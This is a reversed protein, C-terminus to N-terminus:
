DRSLGLQERLMMNMRSQWGKGSNKLVDVIDQDLRVSIPVKPNEIPPRGRKKIERVFAEALEPHADSFSQATSLVADDLEPSSVADFDAETYGNEKAHKPDFKRM